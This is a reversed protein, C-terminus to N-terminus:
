IKGPRAARYQCSGCVKRGERNRDGVHGLSANMGKLAPGRAHRPRLNESVSDTAIMAIIIRRYRISMMSSGWNRSSVRSCLISRTSLLLGPTVIVNTM